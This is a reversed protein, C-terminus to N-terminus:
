SILESSPLSRIRSIISPADKSTNLVNTSLSSLGTSTLTQVAVADSSRSALCVKVCHHNKERYCLTSLRNRHERYFLKRKAGIDGRGPIRDLCHILFGRREVLNKSVRKELSSRREPSIQATVPAHSPM